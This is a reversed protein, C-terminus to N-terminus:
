VVGRFPTERFVVELDGVNAFAAALVQRRECTASLKIGLRIRPDKTCFASRSPVCGSVGRLGFLTTRNARRM